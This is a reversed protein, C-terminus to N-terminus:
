DFCEEVIEQSSKAQRVCQMAAHTIRKGVCDKLMTDRVQQKTEEIGTEVNAAATERKQYELRAIYEVIEECEAVTAPHGCGTAGAAALLVFLIRPQMPAAANDPPGAFDFDGAQGRAGAV